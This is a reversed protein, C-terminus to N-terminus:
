GSQLGFFKLVHEDGSPRRPRLTSGLRMALSSTLPWDTSLVSESILASAPPKRSGTSAGRTRALTPAMSWSERYHYFRTVIMATAPDRGLRPFISVMTARRLHAIITPIM